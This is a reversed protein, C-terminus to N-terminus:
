DCLEEYQWAIERLEKLEDDMQMLYNWDIMAITEGSDFCAVVVGEYGEKFADMIHKKHKAKNLSYSKAETFKYDICFSGRRADGKRLGRGSNKVLVADDRRAQLEEERNYDKDM